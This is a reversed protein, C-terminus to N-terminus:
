NPIIPKRFLLRELRITRSTNLITVMKFPKLLNQGNVFEVSLKRGLIHSFFKMLNLGFRQNSDYDRM